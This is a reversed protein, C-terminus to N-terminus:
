KNSTNLAIKEKYFDAAKKYEEHFIYQNTLEPFSDFLIKSEVVARGERYDWGCGNNFRYRGNADKPYNDMSIEYDKYIWHMIEHCYEECKTFESSGKSFYIGEKTVVPWPVTNELHNPEIYEYIEHAKNIIDHLTM